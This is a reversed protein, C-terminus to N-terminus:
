WGYHINTRPIAVMTADIQTLSPIALALKLKRRYQPDKTIPNAEFYVTKGWSSAPDVDGWHELQHHSRQGYM